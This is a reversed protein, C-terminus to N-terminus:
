EIAPASDTAAAGSACLLLEQGACQLQRDIVRVLRWVEEGDAIREGGHAEVEVSSAEPIAAQHPAAAQSELDEPHSASPVNNLTALRWGWLACGCLQRKGARYLLMACQVAGSLRCAKQNRAKAADNAAWRWLSFMISMRLGLTLQTFRHQLHDHSSGAIKKARWLRFLVLAPLSTQVRLRGKLLVKCCHRLRERLSHGELKDSTCLFEQQADPAALGATSAPAQAVERSASALQPSPATVPQSRGLLDEPVARCTEALMGSSGMASDFLQTGSSPSSQYSVTSTAETM